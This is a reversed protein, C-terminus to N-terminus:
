TGQRVVYRGRSEIKALRDLVLVADKGRQKAYAKYFAAFLGPSVSKKFLLLDTAQEEVSSSFQALGFDILFLAGDPALLFNSTTSDGHCIGAAHLKALIKGANSAATRQKAPPLKPLSTRLLKAGLKEIFIQKKALDAHFLQPTPVGAASAAALTKAERKTRTTRLKEDLERARYAKALRQKCLCPTGMFVAPFLSAEAGRSFEKVAPEELAELIQGEPIKGQRLIKPGNLLCVITSPPSLVLPGADIALGSKEAFQRADELSFAPQEGSVNASTSVVPVGSLRALLRAFPNVSVRFAVSGSKSAALPKKLPVVLTLPGPLFKKCLKKALPSLLAYKEIQSVPSVIVPLDKERPRRKLRYIAEVAKPNTADCGLAYSTETPYVVLKGARIAKAALAAANKQKISVIM